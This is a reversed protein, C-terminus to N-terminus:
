VPNTLSSAEGALTDAEPRSILRVAGARGTVTRSNGADDDLVLIVDDDLVMAISVRGHRGDVELLDGEHVDRIRVNTAM